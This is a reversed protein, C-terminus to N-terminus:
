TFNPKQPNINIQESLQSPVRPVMRVVNDITMITRGPWKEAVRTNETIIKKKKAIFSIPPWIRAQKNVTKQTNNESRQTYYKNVSKM